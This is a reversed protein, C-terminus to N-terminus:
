SEAGQCSEPRETLSRARERETCLRSHGSHHSASASISRHYAYWCSTYVRAKCCTESREWTRMAILM